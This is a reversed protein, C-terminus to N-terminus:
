RKFLGVKFGAQASFGNVDSQDLGGYNFDGAFRYGIGINFRLNQLLNIELLASPEVLLFNAESALNLGLFEEDREVEAGGILLPFSMHFTRDSFLTYEVFGGVWRFDMAPSPGAVNGSRFDKASLNYFGGVTFKNDFVAGARLNLLTVNANAWEAPTMSVAAMAGVKTKLDSKGFLTKSETTEQATAFGVSGLLTLLFLISKLTNM